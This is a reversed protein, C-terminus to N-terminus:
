LDQKEMSLSPPSFFTLLGLTHTGAVGWHGDPEFMLALAECSYYLIWLGSFQWFGGKSPFLKYSHLELHSLTGVRNM